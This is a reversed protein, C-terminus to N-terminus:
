HFSWGCSHLGGGVGELFSLDPPCCFFSGLLNQGLPAFGRINSRLSQPITRVKLKKLLEEDPEHSHDQTVEIKCSEPDLIAKGLCKETVSSDKTNKVHFCYLGIKGGSAKKNFRYLPNDATTHYFIGGRKGEVEEYDM